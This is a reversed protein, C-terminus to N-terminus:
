EEFLMRDLDSARRRLEAVCREETAAGCLLTLVPRGAAIPTGGDPIDAFAPMSNAPSHTEACWPGDRPFSLAARAFLIAKGVVSSHPADTGRDDALAPEFGQRHLALSRLGTAYEIVEVSATYRPNVEVPYPVGDRLICDVGFLGRLGFGNVLTTGLDAFRRSMEPSLALPGISGCYHFAAAHLWTEGILQRTVGLLRAGREDGVYVAACSEGPIFEQWYVRRSDAQPKAGRDWVRVGSGGAGARLKILWRADRPPTAEGRWVEPAALGASRLVARVELSSRVRRLVAAGNGWLPRRREALAEVLEPRNELGGTYLWPGPADFIPLDLFGRPYDKAAVRQVPCRARLDADAFLDACVPVMGLRLASFAAARASAGIILLSEGPRM